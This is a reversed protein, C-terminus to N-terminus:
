DVKEVLQFHTTAPEFFFLLLVTFNFVLLSWFLSFNRIFRTNTKDVFFLIIAGAAPTISLLSLM